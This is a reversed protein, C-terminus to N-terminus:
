SFHKERRQEIDIVSYAAEQLKDHIFYYAGKRKDLISEAVATDLYKVLEEQLAEELEHIFTIEASAGFCSLSFLASVVEPSLRHLSGLLFTAVSEPIKMDRIKIMDWVWRHQTLSPTLYDKRRIEFMLQKIFIPNGKTRHHLINALPRTIRPLLSLTVSVLENVTEKSMPALHIMTRKIGYTNLLALMTTLPHDENMENERCCLLFFFRCNRIVSGSIMLLQNLLAVSASDIWQSDDLYLVVAEDHCKSIVKVFQCFLYRLRKQADVAGDGGIGDKKSGDISGLISPLNPMISALVWIDSGIDKKLMSSVKEVTSHDTTCLWKCYDDFASGIAYFPRSSQMRDFRGSLFICPKDTGTAAYAAFETCLASKGIGSAGFIQAVECESSVSRYFSKKLANLETERGFLIPRGGRNGVKRDFRINAKTFDFKGLYEEPSDMMIKLDDRVDSFRQFDENDVDSEESNHGKMKMDNILDCLANPLGLSRLRLIISDTMSDFDISSSNTREVSSNSAFAKRKNKNSVTVAMEIEIEDVESISEVDRDANVSMQSLDSDIVHGTVTNSQLFFAQMPGQRSQMKNDEAVIVQGGSFLEVFIASLCYMLEKRTMNNFSTGISDDDEDIFSACQVNLYNVGQGQQYNDAGEGGDSRTQNQGAVLISICRYWEMHIERYHHSEKMIECARGEDAECTKEEEIASLQDALFHAIKLAGSLYESSCVLNSISNYENNNNDNQFVVEDNNNSALYDLVNSIWESMGLTKIPWSNEFHQQQSKVGEDKDNILLDMAM